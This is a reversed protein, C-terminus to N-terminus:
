FTVRLERVGRNTSHDRLPVEAAPVALALGPFAEFLRVLAIRVVVRALQQGICLHLGHGFGLHQRAEARDLRLTDPDAFVRPDRNAAPLSLTVAQGARVLVGEVEVDELATRNPAGQHPVTAYRMLEDTANGALSPDARLAALQAPHTLLALVGLGLMNATPEHGAVLLLLAINTLEEATLEARLEGILGGPRDGTVLGHLYGSLAAFARGAEEKPSDLDVVTQTDRQFAPHDDYPVGLLDCTVITAVPIAFGAMLDAGPGAAALVKLQAAVVEEIAPNLAALRHATFHRSLLRRYCTHEPRDMNVFWGPLAEEPTHDPEAGDDPRYEAVPVHRLEPRNSFRPDSLVQRAAAHGTVLWGVHGDPYALPAVPCRERLAGLEPPPDFLSGPARKTPLEIPDM